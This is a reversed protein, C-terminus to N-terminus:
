TPVTFLSVRLTLFFNLTAFRVYFILQLDSYVLSPTTEACFRAFLIELQGRQFYCNHQTTYLLWLDYSHFTRNHWKKPWFFNLYQEKFNNDCHHGRKLKHVKCGDLWLNDFCAFFILNKQKIAFAMLVINFSCLM